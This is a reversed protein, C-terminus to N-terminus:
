GIAKPDLYEEWYEVFRARTINKEYFGFSNDKHKMYVYFLTERVPGVGIVEKVPGVAIVEKLDVSEQNHVHLIRM